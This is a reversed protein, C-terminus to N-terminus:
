EEILNASILMKYVMHSVQYRKIPIKPDITMGDNELIGEKYCFGVGERAWKSVEMYDNYESLANIIQYDEMDTNIGALKAARAVMVAAEQITITGKPDFVRESRGKIIKYNYASAVYGYFWDDKKVDNFKYIDKKDLGFARVIITAFEARTMNNNPDFIGPKKGNIIKRYALENIAKKYKNSKIDSFIITQDVIPMIKIDKNKNELGNIEKKHNKDVVIKVDDMRYLSSMGHKARYASVIGYFGQESSMQNNGKIENSHIFGGNKNRYTLVNDLITNGKKVFRKDNIDIGLENLAVLMQVASEVNMNGWSSFGGYENQKKSMCELAELSAKKVKPKNQYKALAQLAMGTIDPDSTKDGETADPTGGFLSWGGDPLQCELIRDIYMQRTAQTKAKKNIPMKYNGSDLAILAWIPGNLGQWITKEYDGLPTLLNYGGVDSPDAGISSLSVIIRSYETYKKDHLNGKLKKVYKEVTQYYEDYYKKPVKYNSRALGIIAWEGGISGVIPEKVTQYMYEASKEVLAELDSAKNSYDSFIVTISLSLILLISLAKKM